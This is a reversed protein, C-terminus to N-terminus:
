PYEINGVQIETGSVVPTLTQGWRQGALGVDPVLQVWWVKGAGTKNEGHVRMYEREIVPYGEM